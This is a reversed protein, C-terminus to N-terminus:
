HEGAAVVMMWSPYGFLDFPPAIDKIEPMEGVGSGGGGVVGGGVVPTPRPAPTSLVALIMTMM